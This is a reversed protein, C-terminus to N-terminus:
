SGADEFDAIRFRNDDLFEREYDFRLLRLDEAFGARCDFSAVAVQREYEVLSDLSDRSAVSIVGDVDLLEIELLRAYVDDVMAQEDSFRFGARDMCGPWSVQLNLVRPDSELRSNMRALDDEFEGVLALLGVIGSFAEGWCGAPQYQETNATSFEGVLARDYDIAQQPTLSAVYELNTTTPDPVSQGADTVIANIFSSTIGLGNAATWERSGDSAFAGSRFRSEASGVAYFFGNERMCQVIRQDADGQMTILQYQRHGPDSTFGLEAELPSQAVVAATVAGSEEQEPTTTTDGSGSCAALGVALV